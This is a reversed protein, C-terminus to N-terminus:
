PQRWYSWSFPGVQHCPDTEQIEHRGAAKADEVDLLRLKRNAGRPDCVQKRLAAGRALVAIEASWINLAGNTGAGVIRQGDASFRADHVSPIRLRFQVIEAGTMANWVRVTGDDSATVIRMSDFSFHASWVGGSHGVLRLRESGTERDWIRVSRDVSATVVLSEDPSFDISRVWGTHGAFRRLEQGSEAHWLRGTADASATAVFKGTPSYAVRRVWDTHGRLTAVLQGSRVDWIRATRDDSGTVIRKGNPSFQTSWIGSQHGVFQRKQEGTRSDWLRAVNDLGSTVVTAGGEGFQASRLPGSSGVLRVLEQGTRADWIRAIRDDAASLVRLGEQDFVASRVSGAHGDLRVQNPLEGARWVRVVDREALTVIARDGLAFVVQRPTGGLENLRTLETQSSLDWIRATGDRSSTLLHKGSQAFSAHTVWNDHGVLKPLEQGTSANWVQPTRNSSAAAILGGDPSFELTFPRGSLGHLKYVITGTSVSWIHAEGDECATALQKGDPSIQGLLTRGRECGAKVIVQRTEWDWVRAADDSVTMITGSALSFAARSPAAELHHLRALEEGTSTSWVRASQDDSTTVAHTGDFNFEVSTVRSAHGRFTAVKDGSHSNWISVSGSMSIAAVRTGDPSFVAAQLAEEHALKYLLRGSSLDVLQATADGFLILLNKGLRDTTLSKVDRGAQSLDALLPNLQAAAAVKAELALMDRSSWGIAWPQQGRYPLGLVGLRTARNFQGALISQQTLASLVAVERKATERFQIIAAVLGASVAVATAFLAWASRKQFRRIRELQERERVFREREKDRSERLFALHRETPVPARRPRRALWREADALEEGRLYLAEKRLADDGAVAQAWRRAMEALRTHDKVWANDTLLTAELSRVRSDFERESAPACPWVDSFPLRHLESLQEPVGSSQYGGLDVPVLRKSEDLTKEIEWKCWRSEISSASMVFAVADSRQIFSLLEAMWKEGYPLDRRDILVEIEASELKAVLADVFEADRRSYSIFVRLPRVHKVHDVTAAFDHLSM